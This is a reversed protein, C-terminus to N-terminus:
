IRLDNQSKRKKKKKEKKQYQKKSQASLFLFFFTYGGTALIGEGGEDLDGRKKQKKKVKM